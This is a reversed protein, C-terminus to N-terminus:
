VRFIFIGRSTIISFAVVVPKFCCLAAAAAFSNVFPDVLPSSRTPPSPDDITSTFSPSDASVVVAALILFSSIFSILDIPRFALDCRIFLLLYCVCICVCACLNELM